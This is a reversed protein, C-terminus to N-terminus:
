FFGQLGEKKVNWNPSTISVWCLSLKKEIKFKIEQKFHEREEMLM